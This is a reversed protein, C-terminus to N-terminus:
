FRRTSHHVNSDLRIRIIPIRSPFQIRQDAPELLQGYITARNGKASHRVHNERRRIATFPIRDLEEKLMFVSVTSLNEETVLQSGSFNYNKIHSCLM